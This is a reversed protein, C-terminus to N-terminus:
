VLIVNIVEHLRDPMCARMQACVVFELILFILRLQQLIWFITLFDSQLIFSLSIWAGVFRVTRQSLTALVLRQRFYGAGQFKVTDARGKTTMRDAPGASSM